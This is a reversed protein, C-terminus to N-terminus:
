KRMRERDGEEEERRRGGGEGDERRRGGGGEGEGGGEEERGQESVYRLIICQRCCRTNEGSSGGVECSASDSM